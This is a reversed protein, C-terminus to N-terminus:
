YYLGADRLEKIFAAPLVLRPGSFSSILGRGHDIIEGFRTALGSYPLLDSTKTYSNLYTVLINISYVSDSVRILIQVGEPNSEVLQYVTYPQIWLTLFLRALDCRRATGMRNGVRAIVVLM